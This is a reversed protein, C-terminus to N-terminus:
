SRHCSICPKRLQKTVKNTVKRECAMIRWVTLGSLLAWWCRDRFLDQSLVWLRATMNWVLEKDSSVFTMGLFVYSPQTYSPFFSELKWSFCSVIVVNWLTVWNKSFYLVLNLAKMQLGIRCVWWPSQLVTGRVEVETYEEQGAWSGWNTMPHLTTIVAKYNLQKVWIVEWPLDGLTLFERDKQLPSLHEMDERSWVKWDDDKFGLDWARM